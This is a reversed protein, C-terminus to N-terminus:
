RGAERPHAWPFASISLRALIWDMLVALLTIWVVYPLIVDMAMYRRVLFIRYGLGETSAIAEAAILFLWAPGLQLRVAVLLRPLVQPLVLRIIMAWTSAGLTQAKVILEEPIDATRGAIDRIMVPAIGLAILTIKSAEGLGLAIFLIPLVALPPIVSLVAVFPGLTARIRPIFGIAIGLTLASLTAAGVGIGLRELSALTDSWLLIDGSRKEPETALALFARWMQPISPLLKDDPNASLRQASAYVYAGLVLLIPLAGLALSSGRGPRANVLRM